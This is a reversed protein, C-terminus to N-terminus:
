WWTPAETRPHASDRCRGERDGQGQRRLRRRRGQQGYIQLPRFLFRFCGLQIKLADLQDDLNNLGHILTMGVLSALGKYMPYVALAAANLKFVDKFGPLGPERSWGRLTVMNAPRQDKIREKVLEVWKNVLDATFAAESSGDQAEVPLPKAGVKQPDTENLAHSLGPGRLILAFRYDRVPKVVLDVGPLTIDKILDVM